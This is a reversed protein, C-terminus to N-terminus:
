VTVAPPVGLQGKAKVKRREAQLTAPAFREARSRRRMAVCQIQKAGVFRVITSLVLGLIWSAEVKRVRRRSRGDCHAKWESESRQPAIRMGVLM